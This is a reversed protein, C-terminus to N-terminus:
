VTGSLQSVDAFLGRAFLSAAHYLNSRDLQREPSLLSLSRSLTIAFIESINASFSDNKKRKNSKHIKQPDITNKHQKQTYYHIVLKLVFSHERPKFWVLSVPVPLPSRDLVRILLFIFFMPVFALRVRLGIMLKTRLEAKLEWKENERKEAQAREVSSLRHALEGIEPLSALRVLPRM